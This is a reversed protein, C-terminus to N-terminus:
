SAAARDPLPEWGHANCWGFGEAEQVLQEPCDDQPCNPAGEIRPRPTWGDNPQEIREWASGHPPRGVTPAATEAALRARVFRTADHVEDPLDGAAVTAVQAPSWGHDDVKSALLEVAEGRLDEVDLAVTVLEYARVAPPTLQGSEQVGGGGGAQADATRAPAHERAHSSTTPDKSLDHPPQRIVHDPQDARVNRSTARVNRSTTSRGSRTIRSTTEEERITRDPFLLGPLTPVYRHTAQTRGEQRKGGYQEVAVFGAAELPTLWKRVVRADSWGCADALADQGPFCRSGDPDMYTSMVLALLRASPPLASAKIAQWWEIRSVPETPPPDTM